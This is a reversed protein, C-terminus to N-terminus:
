QDSLFYPLYCKCLSNIKPAEKLEGPLGCPEELSLECHATGLPVRHTARLGPPCFPREQGHTGLLTRPPRPRRSAGTRESGVFRRSGDAYIQM